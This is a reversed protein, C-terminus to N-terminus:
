VAPFDDGVATIIWKVTNSLIVSCFTNTEKILVKMMDECGSISLGLSETAQLGARNKIM